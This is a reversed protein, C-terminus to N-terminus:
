CTPSNSTATASARLRVASYAGFLTPQSAPQSPTPPPTPHPPNVRSHIYAIGKLLQRAIRKVVGLRTPISGVIGGRWRLDRVSPLQTMFDGGAVSEMVVCYSSCDYDDPLEKTALNFAGKMENCPGAAITRVVNPHVLGLSFRAERQADVLRVKGEEPPHPPEKHSLKMVKVVYQVGDQLPNNGDPGVFRVVTYQRARAASRDAPAPTPTCECHMVTPTALACWHEM